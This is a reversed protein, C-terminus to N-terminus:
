IQGRPVRMTFHTRGQERHYEVNGAHARLVARALSLGLGTGRPKTTFFPEFLQGARDPPVGPGEDSVRVFVGDASAGVEVEVEAGPPSAEVANRILNDLARGLADHDARASGSGTVRVRVDRGQAWPASASARARALAGVDCEAPAVARSHALLDSVLRNLRDVERGLVDVDERRQAEDSCDGERILDIRLKIAALPNRVEHAIAAVLRGLAGLQQERALASLLAERDRRAQDLGGALDRLSDAVGSLEDIGPAPVPAGLDVSLGRAASELARAATGLGRLADVAVWLLVAFVLVLAAAVGKWFRMARVEAVDVRAWAIGGSPRARAAVVFPMGGQQGREVDERGVSLLAARARAASGPDLDRFVAGADADIGARTRGVSCEEVISPAAGPAELRDLARQAEFQAREALRDHYERRLGIMALASAALLAVGLAVVLALRRRLSISRAIATAPGSARQAISSAEPM